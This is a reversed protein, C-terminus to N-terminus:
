ARRQDTIRKLLSPRRATIHVRIRWWLSAALMTAAEVARACRIWSTSPYTNSFCRYFADESQQPPQMCRGNLQIMQWILVTDIM